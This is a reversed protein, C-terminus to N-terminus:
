RSRCMPYRPHLRCFKDLAQLLVTVSGDGNGVLVDRAGDRNVDAARVVLASAPAGSGGSPYVTPSRRFTGDGKGRLLAITGSGCDGAIGCAAAAVLDARGDHNLDAVAVSRTNKGGAGYTVVPRFTGDGNGLLVGLVGDPAADGGGCGSAADPSCNAVVLDLHRDGNLDAVAVSSAGFGGADYEVAPEFSGDGNGLLVVVTFFGSGVLLDLHGDRNVDAVTVSQANFGAHTLPPQFSGDGNGLLVGVLGGSCPDANCSNAVVLDPKGDENVDRAAVSWPNVGGSPYTVAPGLTGGGKGLLVGVTHSYLNAVVVDPIRDGDVDNVAVATAGSGGSDYTTYPRLAGRGNGLIVSVVGGDSAQYCGASSGCGAVVVDLQADGNMDAAVIGQATSAGSAYSGATVLSPAPLARAPSASVLAALIGMLRFVMGLRQPKRPYSRIM